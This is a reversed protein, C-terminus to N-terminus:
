GRYKKKAFTQVLAGLREIDEATHLANLVVRTIRPDSPTPYPFSSILIHHDALFDALENQPTYFVPHKEISQFLGTNKTLRHFHRINQHLQARAARYIEGGKVFAYLFAPSAPSAGGFFPHTKIQELRERTGLIVGGPIGFAKALSSIVLKELGRAVPLEEYIGGGNKGTIGLGHSDDIIATIPREPPLKKLWDFNYSRGFTADLANSLLLCNGTDPAHQLTSIHRIITESWAEFTGNFPRYSEPWLAPHLGPAFQYDAGPTGLARLALQGAMMGSSIILAAPAGTRRAIATEAKEFIGPRVSALRSGGYHTGYRSIGERVLGQFAENQVVGLYATGSFYLWEEGDICAARGPLRDIPQM